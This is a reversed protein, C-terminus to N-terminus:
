MFCLRCEWPDIRLNILSVRDGAIWKSAANTAAQLGGGIGGVALAIAGAEMVASGVAAIEGDAVAMGSGVKM